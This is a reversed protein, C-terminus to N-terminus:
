LRMIIHASEFVVKQLLNERMNLNECLANLCCIALWSLIYDQFMKKEVRIFGIYRFLFRSFM